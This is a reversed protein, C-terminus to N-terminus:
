NGCNLFYNDAFLGDCDVKVMAHQCDRGRNGTVLAGRLGRLYLPYGCRFANNGTISVNQQTFGVGAGTTLVGLAISGCDLVTNGTITIVPDLHEATQQQVKAGILACRQIVNSAVVLNGGRTLYIGHQGPIDHIHNGEIIADMDGPLLLGFAHGSIDNGRVVIGTKAISNATGAIAADCGSEGKRIREAGMGVITSDLIRVKDCAGDLVIGGGAHNTIRADRLLVDACNSVYVAAVGNYPTPDTSWPKEVGVGVLSAGIVRISHCDSVLLTKAHEAAQKFCAGYCDLTLNSRRCEVSGAVRFVGSLTLTSFSEAKAIAELLLQTDDSGTPTICNAM